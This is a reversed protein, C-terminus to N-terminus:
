NSPYLQWDLSASAGLSGKDDQLSTPPSDGCDAVFGPGVAIVTGVGGGLVAAALVTGILAFPTRSLILAVGLAVLLLPWLRWAGAMTNRDLYGAQIALAMLGATVFALGWFRFGRNLRM